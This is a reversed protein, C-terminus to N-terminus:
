QSQLTAYTCVDCDPGNPYEDRYTAIWTAGALISDDARSLSATYVDGDTAGVVQIVRWAVDLGLDSPEVDLEAAIEGNLPTVQGLGAATPLRVAGHACRQGICVTMMAGELENPTTATYVHATAADLCGLLTCEHPPPAAADCASTM